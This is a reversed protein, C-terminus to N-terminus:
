ERPLIKRQAIIKFLILAFFHYQKKLHRLRIMKASTKFTIKNCKLALKNKVGWLFIDGPM